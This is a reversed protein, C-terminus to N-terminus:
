VKKQNNIIEQKRHYKRTSMCNEPQRQMKQNDCMGNGPKRPLKLQSVMESVPLLNLILKRPNSASVM